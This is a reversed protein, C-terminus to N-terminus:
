PGAAKSKAFGEPYADFSLFTLDLLRDPLKASYLFEKAWGPNSGRLMTVVYKINDSQYKSGELYLAM